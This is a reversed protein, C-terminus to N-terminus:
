PIDWYPQSGEESPRIFRSVRVGRRAVAKTVPSTVAPARHSGISVSALVVVVSKSKIKMRISRDKARILSSRFRSVGSKWTGNARGMKPKTTLRPKKSAWSM